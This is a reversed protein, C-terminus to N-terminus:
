TVMAVSPIDSTQRSHYPLDTVPHTTMAVPKDPLLRPFNLVRNIDAIKTHTLGCFLSSPLPAKDKNLPLQSSWGRFGSGPTCEFLQLPPPYYLFQM